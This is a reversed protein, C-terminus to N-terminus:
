FLGKMAAYSWGMPGMLLELGGLPSPNQESPMTGTPNMPAGQQMMSPSMPAYVDGSMQAGPGYMQGLANNVPQYAAMTSRLANMQAQQAEPRYANYAAGARQLQEQKHLEDPNQVFNGVVPMKHMGFDLGLSGMSGGIGNGLLGM